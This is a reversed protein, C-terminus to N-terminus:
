DENLSRFHGVGFVKVQQSQHRPLEKNNQFTIEDLYTLDNKEMQISQLKLLKSFLRPHVFKLKNSELNLSNLEELDDFTHEDNLKELSTRKLDLWELKRLGRFNRRNVTKLPCEKIKVGRLNPYTESINEPLYHVLSDAVIYMKEIFSNRENSLQIGPQSINTGEPLHSANAIFLGHKSKAHFDFGNEGEDFKVRIAKVNFQFNFALVLAVAILVSLFDFCLCLIDIQNNM